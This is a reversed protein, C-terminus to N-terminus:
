ATARPRDHSEPIAPQPGHLALSQLHTWAHTKSLVLQRAKEARKQQESPPVRCVMTSEVFCLLTAQGQYGPSINASTQREETDPTSTKDRDSSRPDPIKDLTYCM